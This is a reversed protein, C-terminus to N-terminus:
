SKSLILRNALEVVDKFTLRATRLVVDELRLNNDIILKIAANYDRYNKICSTIEYVLKNLPDEEKYNNLLDDYYSAM